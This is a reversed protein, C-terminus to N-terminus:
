DLVKLQVVQGKLLACDHNLYGIGPLIHFLVCDGWEALNSGSVVELEFQPFEFKMDIKELQLSTVDMWKEIWPDVHLKPDAVKIICALRVSIALVSEAMEVLSPYNHAENVKFELLM